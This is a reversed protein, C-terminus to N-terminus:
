PFVLSQQPVPHCNSNSACRASLALSAKPCNSWSLEQRAARRRRTSGLLQGIGAARWSTLGIQFTAHVSAAALFAKALWAPHREVAHDHDRNRVREIQSEAALGALSDAITRRLADDPTDTAKWIIIRPAESRRSWGLSYKRILGGAEITELAESLADHLKVSM